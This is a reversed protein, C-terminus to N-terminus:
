LWIIHHPREYCQRYPDSLQVPHAVETTPHNLNEKKKSNLCISPQINIKVNTILTKKLRCSVNACDGLARDFFVHGRPRHSSARLISAFPYVILLQLQMSYMNQIYRVLDSDSFCLWSEPFLEVDSCSKNWQKCALYVGIFLQFICYNLVM